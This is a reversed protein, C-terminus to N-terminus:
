YKITSTWYTHVKHYITKIFHIVQASDEIYFADRDMCEGIFDEVEITLSRVIGQSFCFIDSEHRLLLFSTVDRTLESKNQISCKLGQGKQEILLSIPLTSTTNLPTTQDQYKWQCPINLSLVHHFFRGMDNDHKIGYLLQDNVTFKKTVKALFFCINKETDNLEDEHAYIYQMLEALSLPIPTNKYTVIYHLICNKQPDIFFSFQINIQIDQM